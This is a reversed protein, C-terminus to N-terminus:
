QTFTTVVSNEVGFPSPAYRDAQWDNEWTEGDMLYKFQYESDVPLELTAAFGDKNMKMPLAKDMDWDNFDGLVKVDKTDGAAEKPLHFTVKCAQKSKIFRKKISM